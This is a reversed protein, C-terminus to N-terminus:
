VEAWYETPYAEYDVCIVPENLDIPHEVYEVKVPLPKMVDYFDENNGYGWQAGFHTQLINWESYLDNFCISEGSMWRENWRAVGQEVADMSSRFMRGSYGDIVLTEGNGTEEVYPNAAKTYPIDKLVDENPLLEKVKKEIAAKQTALCGCGATVVALEKAGIRELAVVSIITLGGAIIPPIWEKYLVKARKKVTNKDKEDITRLVESARLGSRYSLGGTVVIGLISLSALAITKKM